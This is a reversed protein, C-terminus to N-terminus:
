LRIPHQRHSTIDRVRVRSPYAGLTEFLQRLLEVACLGQHEVASERLGHQLHVGAVPPDIASLDLLQRPLHGRPLELVGALRDDHAGLPTM